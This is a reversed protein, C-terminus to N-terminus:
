LRKNEEKTTESSEKVEGLNEEFHQKEVLCNKFAKLNSLDSSWVLYNEKASM